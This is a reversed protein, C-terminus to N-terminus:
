LELSGGPEVVRVDVGPAVKAVQAAFERPPDRLLDPHRGAMGLPFLCGWHIPVAVRPQLLATARAAGAPDLHGPGLTPGWGWVPLLALDLDGGLDAMGDFLDTDGAFYTRHGGADIRFGVPEAVPSGGPRRRSDHLAPTATIRAAGVSTSEGAALETVEPHGHRRLFDGAGRPAVIRAGPDLLRLSPLDLHDLHMHSILVADLNRPADPAPGQRRLHGVRTRLVPDTLLRVGGMDLLVTAHGVYTMRGLQRTGM